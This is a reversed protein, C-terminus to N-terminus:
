VASPKTLTCKLMQLNNGWRLWLWIIRLDMAEESVSVIFEMTFLGSQIYREAPSSGVNLGTANRGFRHM